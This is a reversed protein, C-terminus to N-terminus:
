EYLAEEQAAKPMAQPREVTTTLVCHSGTVSSKEFAEMMEVVHLGLAGSARPARKRDLAIAMDLLGLGRANQSFAFQLPVKESEDNGKHRVKVIGGFHNPDPVEITGKSGFVLIHPIPWPVTDFSTTITAIAGSCFDIVGSIHTPTEVEIVKGRKAPTTITRTPFSIRTAGAIRQAPGLLHVLASLYYPGMDFMPGGGKEYYFEPNPHWSEVGTSLMAAQAGVVDGIVGRDILDRATQIGAGLVTDPACGVQVGHTNADNMIASAEAFTLGLPKESFVHKGVSIAARTIAAHIKPPTLNLVIDVMPDGFVDAVTGSKPLNFKVEAEIAKHEDLDAVIAVETGRFRGLNELYVGSINGCGIVGIRAPRM